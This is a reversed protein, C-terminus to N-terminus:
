RFNDATPERSLGLDDLLRLYEERPLDRKAQALVEYALARSARVAARAADFRATFRRKQEENM